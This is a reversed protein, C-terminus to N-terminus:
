LIPWLDRSIDLSFTWRGNRLGRAVDVRLLDFFGITGLGLAPHWGGPGVLPRDIWAAHVYPALVLTAPVRGFRGLDVPLFPIRGQWEIRQSVGAGGILSHFDYGPGTVPGGLRVADQVPTAGRSHGAAITRTVLRGPALPLGLEIEGSLRAIRTTWEGSGPIGIESGTLKLATRWKGAGNEILQSAEWGVTLARRDLAQAAVTPEFSGWASSAGIALAGERRLVGEASLRRGRGNVRELRLAGGRAAIPNTWDSGFEQAAISNRIGSGEAVEGLQLFDDSGTLTLSLGSARRWTLTGRGKVRRDETGYRGGVTTSFGGGLRQSFGVGVALGEVRDSRVFDSISRAALNSTRVRSLAGAQVLRRAEDQVARVEEADLARVDEPLASLIDGEFPYARLQERTGAEVIEAGRFTEPSVNANAQICCIEWRGRIIGRAPFDMWSASRQIEIEQRRPLWFRGDVLGNELIVSVDELQRDRLAARTFSFTMRVVSATARDLYVAGVAAPLRPDKPRVSVMMVDVSVGTGRIALSDVLRYDYVSEGAPSLPHPVDLVEDGDGLRIIDPFNNQIVGLHDRHYNIDTPLLLTDRRGIIRQKSQNPAGWYVELVLQDSKVLAPTEIFGDGFQALFTLTGTARATYDRLGTDALQVARRATAARVLELSRADNWTEQAGLPSCPTFAGWLIVGFAALATRFAHM